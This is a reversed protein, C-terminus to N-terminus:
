GTKEREREREIKRWPCLSYILNRSVEEWGNGEKKEPKIEEATESHVQFVRVQSELETSM